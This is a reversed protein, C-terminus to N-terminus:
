DTKEVKYNLMAHYLKESILGKWRNAVEKVWQEKVVKYIYFAGLKTKFSGLYPNYDGRVCSATYNKNKKNYVVGIPCSGRYNQRKTFLINIDPPVLCCTEPSYIKNGKQLIDKDLDWSSNMWPKFNDEFWKAFNQFCEWEKCLTVNNYTSNQSIEGCCRNLMSSWKVHAIKNNKPTYKGQGIYGVGCVSKHYPNKVSGKKIDNHRRNEIICGNEFQVTCNHSNECEIITMPYGENNIWIEGIRDIYRKNEKGKPQYQRKSM